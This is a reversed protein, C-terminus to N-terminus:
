ATVELEKPIPRFHRLLHVEIRDGAMIGFMENVHKPLYLYLGTGHKSVRLVPQIKLNQIKEMEATM